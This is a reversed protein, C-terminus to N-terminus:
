DGDTGQVLDGIPYNPYVDRFKDLEAEARQQEGQERLVRIGALWVDPAPWAPSDTRLRATTVIDEIRGSAQGSTGRM